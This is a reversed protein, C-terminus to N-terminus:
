YPPHPLPQPLRDVPLVAHAEDPRQNAGSDEDGERGDGSAGLGVGVARHADDHRKRWGPGTVDHRSQQRLLERIIEALLEIDLVLRASAAINAHAISRVGRGVTVRDQHRRGGEHDIRAEVFLEGVVRELIKCRDADRTDGGVHQHNM